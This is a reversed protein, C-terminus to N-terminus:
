LVLEYEKVIKYFTTKTMELDNFTEVATKNGSKWNDYAIIFSEREDDAMTDYSKKPRGLHKGRKKAAEIGERQRTSIRKREDEAIWSLVQLVLDAVFSGVSDKYKTTDLLPMDLVIIDAGIEKTIDAWEKLIGDKDRGLRDLSHIYLIDGRKLSCKLIQYRERNFNKGSVKDIEIDRELIGENLLSDIQRDENQDKSSVRVYGYKRSEM